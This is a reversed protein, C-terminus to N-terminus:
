KANGQAVAKEFESIGKKIEQDKLSLQRLKGHYVQLDAKVKKVQENRAALNTRFQVVRTKLQNFEDQAKKYGAQDAHMIAAGIVDLTSLWSKILILNQAVSMQSGDFLKTVQTRLDEALKKQEGILELDKSGNTLLLDVVGLFQESAQKIKSDIKANAINAKANKELPNISAELRVILKEHADFEKLPNAILNLMLNLKVEEKEEAVKLVTIEDVMKKWDENFKTGETQVQKALELVRPETGPVAKTEDISKKAQAIESLNKNADDVDKLLEATVPDEGAVLKELDIAAVEEGGAFGETQADIVDMQQATQAGIAAAANTDQRQQEAQPNTQPNASQQIAVAPNNQNNGPGFVQVNGGGTIGAILHYIFLIVLIVLTLGLFGNGFFSSSSILTPEKSLATQFSLLIAILILMIVAKILHAARVSQVHETIKRSLGFLIGFPIAFFLMSAMGAYTTFITAIVGKPIAVVSLITLALSIVITIRRSGKDKLMIETLIFILAFLIIALIFRAIAVDGSVGSVVNNAFQDSFVYGANSDKILKSIPEFPNTLSAASVTPLIFLLTIFSFLSLLFSIKIKREQM